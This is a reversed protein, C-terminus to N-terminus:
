DRNGNATTGGAGLDILVCLVMGIIWFVNFNGENWCYCAAWCLTTYPLFIWGLIPWIRTEWPSADAFWNAFYGVLLLIRPMLLGFIILLCGVLCGM